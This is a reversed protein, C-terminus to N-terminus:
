GFMHTYPCGPPRHLKHQHCGLTHGDCIFWRTCRHAPDGAKTEAGCIRGGILEPHFNSESYLDSDLDPEEGIETNKDQVSDETSSNYEEDSEEEDQEYGCCSEACSDSCEDHKNEVAKSETDTNKSIHSSPINEEVLLDDNGNRSEEMGDSAVPSLDQPVKEETGKEDGETAM